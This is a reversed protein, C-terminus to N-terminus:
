VLSTPVPQHMVSQCRVLIDNQIVHEDTATGIKDERCRAFHWRGVNLVFTKASRSEPHEELIHLSTAYVTESTATPLNRFHTQNVATLLESHLAANLPDDALRRLLETLEREARDQNQTAAAHSLVAAGVVVCAAILLLFALFGM